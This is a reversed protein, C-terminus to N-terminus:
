ATQDVAQMQEQNMRGGHVNLGSVATEIDHLDAPTLPIDRGADADGIRALFRQGGFREVLPM